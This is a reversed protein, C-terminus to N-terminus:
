AIWGKDFVGKPDLINKLNGRFRETSENKVGMFQGGPGISWGSPPLTIQKDSWLWEGNPSRVGEPYKFSQPVRNVWCGDAIVPLNEGSPMMKLPYLRLAVELIVGLEGRSGVMMRHLDFGAVSKVVNAGSDIIEGNGSMFRMGVVWDRVSGQGFHPLGLGVLGGVTRGPYGLWGRDRLIPLCLGDRAVTELLESLELGAGVRAILDDPRYELVGSLGSTSVKPSDSEALWSEGTGAGRIGFREGTLVLDRWEDLTRPAIM